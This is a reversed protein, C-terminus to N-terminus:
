RLSAAEEYVAAAIAASRDWTFTAARRRGRQGLTAALERDDLVREIAEAIAQVDGPDVILAADGAIEATATGASTVVAAGQAMAYLVPFGFGEGLSPYVVVSARASLADLDGPPVAGLRRCRRGLRSAAAEMEAEWAPPNWGQPGALVLDHDTGRVKEFAQLLRLLNKRQEITGCFLVYPRELGYGRAVTAAEDSEVPHARVGWPVLRLRESEIGADHCAEVSARSPCMVLRAHRRALEFGRKLVAVSHWTYHDPHRLFWLDHVTAVLPARSPPVVYGMDHVVDVPGTAREVAPMRLWQWSEYLARRPLPLQRVPVPPTFPEAPPDRHRASVGVLDLDGRGRLARLLEVTSTAIGGPVVHWSQEVTVAVRM